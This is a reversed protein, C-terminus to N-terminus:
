KMEYNLRPPQKLMLPSLVKGGDGSRCTAQTLTFPVEPLVSSRDVRQWHRSAARRDHTGGSAAMSMDYLAAATEPRM